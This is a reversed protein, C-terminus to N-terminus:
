ELWSWRWRLLTAFKDIHLIGLGGYMKQWCVAKWNVKYKVGTTTNKAAWIFAKKLKNIYKLTGPSITLTTLTTTSALMDLMLRIALAEATRCTIRWM